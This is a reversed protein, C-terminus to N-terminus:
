KVTLTLTIPSLQIQKASGTATATPTLTIPFTGAPTQFKYNATVVASASYSPATAIAQITTGSTNITFPASYLPSSVTPTSGDTTFHISAGSTADTITVTPYGTSFIGGAPQVLPTATVSPTTPAPDTQRQPTSSGSAGGCAVGSSLIAAVLSAALLTHSPNPSRATTFHGSSAVLQLICFASLLVLFFASFTRAFPLAPFGPVLPSPM